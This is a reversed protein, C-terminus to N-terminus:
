CGKEKAWKMTYLPVFVNERWIHDFEGIDVPAQSKGVEITVSTSPSLLSGLYARFSSGEADTALLTYGTLAWINNSLDRCHEVLPNGDYNWYIISGTAHYNLVAKLHHTTSLNQLAITEAESGPLGYFDKSSASQVGTGPSNVRRDPVDFNDNINVGRANAKWRTLYSAYDLSTRGSASDYLYAGEITKRLDESGIGEIGMQSLSVGDPNVMPVFRICVEKLWDSIKQGDFAGNDAYALIYEMQEMVLLSTIYERAHISGTILVQTSAAPDGVIAEYIERNDATTGISHYTMYRSYKEHLKQLDAAMDDYSYKDKTVVLPDIVYLPLASLCGDPTDTSISMTGQAVGGTEAYDKSDPSSFDSNNAGSGVNYGRTGGSESNSINVGPQVIYDANSQFRTEFSMGAILGASLPLLTYRKLKAKINM